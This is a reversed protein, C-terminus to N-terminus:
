AARKKRAVLTELYAKVMEVHRAALRENDASSQFDETMVFYRHEFKESAILFFHSGKAVFVRGKRMDETAKCRMVPQNVNEDYLTADLTSQAIAYSPHYSNLRQKAALTQRSTNVRKM